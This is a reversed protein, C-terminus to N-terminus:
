LLSAAGQDLLWVLKGAVPRVQGAPLKEGDVLIRKVMEAKGEGCMAFLCLHAQNILPYTMTVREPPPKPSDSISAILKNTEKLLPHGPFLSCTHGDPGMGLLLLDFKPITKSDQLGFKNLIEAEYAAAAGDLTLSLDVTVFQTIALGTKPVFLKKFQGFTSDENNEEVFREDCFFLQWKSWDTTCKSAGAALYKILSGGSLGIRFAGNAAIADAASKELYSWLRDIVLEETREVIIESM